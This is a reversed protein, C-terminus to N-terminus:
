IFEHVLLTHVFPLLTNIGEIVAAHLKAQLICIFLMRTTPPSQFAPLLLM